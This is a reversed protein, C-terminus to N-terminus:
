AQRSVCNGGRQKAAYCAEDAASVLEDASAAEAGVPAIGISVGVQHVQGEWPFRFAAVREMLAGAVREADDMSCHELLMVFEDGGWRALSDRERRGRKMLEALRRLMEDGARHGASDNVKKFGDLDMYCLVHWVGRHRAAELASELRTRFERRNILGTLIDHSANHRMQNLLNQVETVDQLMVIVIPEGGYDAVPSKSLEIVRSDGEEGQLMIHPRAASRVDSDALLEGVVERAPPPFLELVSTRLAPEARIALFRRAAQNFSRLRGQGDVNLIGIPLHELLQELYHNGPRPPPQGNDLQRQAAALTRRYARRQRVQSGLRCVWGSLDADDDLPLLQVRRGMNPTVSLRRAYDQEDEPRCLILLAADRSRSLVGSAAGFPRQVGHSFVIVDAMAPDSELAQCLTESDDYRQLIYRGSLGGALREYAAEAVGVM